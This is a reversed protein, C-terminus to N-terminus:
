DLEWAREGHQTIDLGDREEDESARMPLVVSVMLALIATAVASFIAVAGVGILQAILQSVMTAGEGYGLGGLDPALFVALLLSGLM